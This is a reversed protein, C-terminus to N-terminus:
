QVNGHTTLIKHIREIEPNVYNIRNIANLSPTSMYKLKPVNQLKYALSANLYPIKHTRLGVGFRGRGPGQHPDVAGRWQADHAPRADLDISPTKIKMVPRPHRYRTALYGTDM